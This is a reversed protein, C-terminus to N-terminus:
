RGLAKSHVLASLRRSCAKCAHALTGLYTCALCPACKVFCGLLGEVEPPSRNAFPTGIVVDEEQSYKTLLVQVATSPHVREPGINVRLKHWATSPAPM